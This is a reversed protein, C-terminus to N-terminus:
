RMRVQDRYAASHAYTRPIRITHEQGTDIDPGNVLWEEGDVDIWPCNGGVCDKTADPNGTPALRRRPQAPEAM